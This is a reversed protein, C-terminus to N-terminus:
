RRGGQDARGPVPDTRMPVSEGVATRSVAVGVVEGIGRLRQPAQSALVYGPRQELSSATVADVLLENRGAVATLRSALNVTTGFVDGLRSLVPGTAVGVRVDPLVPDVGVVEVLTLAVDTAVFPSSSVFLVEDGLSKVLRAGAAAVVDGTRAEFEDVLAALAAESLGSSLRTFSVLDAFGVSLVGVSAPDVVATLQEIIRAASRALHRRWALVLMDQFVPLFEAAYAYATQRPDGFGAGETEFAEIGEALADMQWDALRSSTRGFARVMQVVDDEELAGTRLLGGLSTAVSVDRETFVPADGVDAFGLARWVRRLVPLALGSREAVEQRTFQPEAGLLLHELAEAGPPPATM